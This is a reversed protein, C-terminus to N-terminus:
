EVMLKYGYNLIVGLKDAGLKLRKAKPNAGIASKWIKKM